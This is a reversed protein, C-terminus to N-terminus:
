RLLILKRTEVFSGAQMRYLYVGSALGSADFKVEHYGAEVEGNVLEKVIQGLTNYVTLTIHSRIPMAYQITTSPNFPNPYNQFLSSTAPPSVGVTPDVAVVRSNTKQLQDLAFAAYASEAALVTSFDCLGSRWASLLTDAAEFITDEAGFIDPLIGEGADNRLPFSNLYYVWTPGGWIKYAIEFATANLPARPADVAQPPVRGIPWYPVAIGTAPNGLIVWFTSTFAPEGHLVGHVVAASVSGVNCITEGAPIYGYPAGGHSGHFPIPYPVGSPDALDRMQHRFVTRPSISDGAYFDDFLATTREFRVLGLSGGGAMAFNTRLVYGHPAAMSDAADYMWYATGGTEFIVAAGTSDMVAFCADTGRQTANTSDLLSKFEAVSACTGAALTMFPGNGLGGASVLDPCWSNVIAFGKDNLSMWSSSRSGANIVALFKHAYTTNLFIANDQNEADRTKWIIPRGDRTARGSAAGLTCGEWSGDLGSRYSLEQPLSTVGPDGQSSAAAAFVTFALSLQICRLTM